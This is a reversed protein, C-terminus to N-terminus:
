RYADCYTGMDPKFVRLKGVFLPGVNQCQAQPVNASISNSFNGNDLVTALMVRPLQAQEAMSLLVLTSAQLLIFTNKMITDRYLRLQAELSQSLYKFVELQAIATDYALFRSSFVLLVLM